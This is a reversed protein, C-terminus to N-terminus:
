QVNFSSASFKLVAHTPIATYVRSLGNSICGRGGGGGGGGCVCVFARALAKFIAM